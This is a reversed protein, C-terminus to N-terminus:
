KKAKAVNPKVPKGPADYKVKPKAKAKPKPTDKIINGKSDLNSKQTQKGGMPTNSVSTGKPTATKVRAAQQLFGELKQRGSDIADAVGGIGGPDKSAM